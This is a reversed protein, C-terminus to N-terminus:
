KNKIKIHASKVTQAKANITFLFSSTRRALLVSLPIRFRGQHPISDRSDGHSHTTLSTFSSVLNSTLTLLNTQIYELFLLSSKIKQKEQSIIHPVIQFVSSDDSNQHNPYSLKGSLM